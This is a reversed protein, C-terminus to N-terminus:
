VAVSWIGLMGSMLSVFLMRTIPLFLTKKDLLIEELRNQLFAIMRDADTYCYCESKHANEM